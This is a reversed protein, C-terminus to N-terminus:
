SVSGPAVIVLNMEIRTKAGCGQHISFTGGLSEVRDRLGSLGMGDESIASQANETGNEVTVILKSGDFSCRVIQECGGAHRFANNLGEQIFRYVCIKIAHSFPYAIPPCDIEVPTGTRREHIDSVRRVVDPLPLNEIEPLMLGRSISRIDNLADSLATAIKHSEAKRITSTAGKAVQELKLAAFGILQAPGDHLDAGIGRIYKENLEVLRSSAHQSRQVLLRNHESVQKIQGLRAGLDAKQAEIVKSGRHVIGFLGFMILATAGVIALWTQRQVIKLKEELPGTAEHIEAVAIIRGSLFEHIPVYVELYTKNFDRAVHEAALLDAYQASVGGGLAVLMGPPPDFQRGIIISEKSYAVLGGEKWIELHPFRGGFDPEGILRNLQNIHDSTLRDSTALEQALPSILSELFLATSSATNEIVIRSVIHSIFVGAFVMAVLMFIGGTFAFQKSMNWNSFWAGPRGVREGVISMMGGKNTKRILVRFSGANV